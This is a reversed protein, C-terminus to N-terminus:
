LTRYASSNKDSSEHPLWVKNFFKVPVWLPIYIAEGPFRRQFQQYAKAYRQGQTPLMILMAHWYSANAPTVLPGVPHLDSVVLLGDMYSQCFFPFARLRWMWMFGMAEYYPIKNKNCYVSFHSHGLEKFYETTYLEEISAGLSLPDALRRAWRKELRKHCREATQAHANDIFSSLAKQRATGALKSRHAM